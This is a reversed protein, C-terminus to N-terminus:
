NRSITPHKINGIRSNVNFVYKRLFPIKLMLVTGLLAIAFRIGILFCISYAFSHKTWLFPAYYNTFNYELAHVCFVILSYRGIWVLLSAIKNNPIIKRSVLVFGYFVGIVGLLDLIYFGKYVSMNVDLNGDPILCLIFAMLSLLLLANWRDQELVKYKKILYGSCFFGTACIGPILSFPLSFYQKVNVFVIAAMCVFCVMLLDNKLRLICNTLLRAWFMAWLFWLPGVSMAKDFPLFNFTYSFGGGWIVGLLNEFFINKGAFRGSFFAVLLLLFGLFAFPVLLRRCSIIFESIFDRKSYNYGSIVFFIPVHFFYLLEYLTRFIPCHGLIILLVCVGKIFDLSSDRENM